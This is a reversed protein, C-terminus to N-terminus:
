ALLSGAYRLLRDLVWAQEAHPQETANAMNLLKLGTAVIHGKGLPATWLLAKNRSLTVVDIARMMVTLDTPVPGGTERYYGCCEGAPSPKKPPGLCSASCTELCCGRSANYNIASCGLEADCRAQCASANPSPKCYYDHCGDGTSYTGNQAASWSGPLTSMADPGNTLPLLFTQAGNIMRLWSTGAFGDPAMGGLIPASNEYILTGANNDAASGLWWAQKFRTAATKFFSSDTSELLVVVSGAEQATKVLSDTIKTTLYVAPPGKPDISAPLVVECDSFGCRTKLGNDTVIVPGKTPSAAAVWRPFLTTNWSNLPVALLQKNSSKAFEATVTITKPGPAGALPVSETTGIDPLIFSIKAVVGLEGQPVPKATPVTETKIPKGDSLISWIVMAGAPLPGDGFNSLSVDVVLTDKSTYSIQMGDQLFISRANFQAIYPEIGPKPRFFTDVIGNNGTWYDQM